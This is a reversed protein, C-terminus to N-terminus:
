PSHRPSIAQLLRLFCQDEDAKHTAELKEGYVKPLAKSLLWKRTDVRLQSRRVNEHDVVRITKGDKTEREIWDNRGDDAIDLLDDAMKQYGVERARAYKPAFEHEPNGAWERVSSEDPMGEDKCIANLTRGAKLEDCIREGLKPSHRVPKKKAKRV